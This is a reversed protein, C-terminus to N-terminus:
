GMATILGGRVYIYHYNGDRDYFTLTHLSSASGLGSYGGINYDNSASVNYFSPSDGSEYYQSHSHYISAYNSSVWSQTAVPFGGVYVNSSARLNIVDTNTCLFSTLNNSIDLTNSEIVLNGATYMRPAGTSTLGLSGGPWGITGGYVGGGSLYGNAGGYAVTNAPVNTLNSWDLTGQLNTVTLTTGDVELDGWKLINNASDLYHTSDKYIQTGNITFGGAKLTGDVDVYFTDTSDKTIKIGDDPNISISTTGKTVTFSANTLVAGNQDLTFSADESTIALSNGALITGFIADGIIGYGTGGSPLDVEGIALASSAWGDDTFGIVNNTVWVQKDDYTAGSVKRGRLGTQDIVFSQDTANILKNTSADLASVIFTSVDDKHYKNWNSWIESNFSVNTGMKTVQGMLDSYVFAAGDLRLRNGFTMSFNSLDSHDIGLELLVAEVVTGDKLEANVVCGLELDDTFQSYEDLALFNIASLSFEYRPQSIKELVNVAQDYLDQSQDQIEAPTMSDLQIINENQYTNEYFYRSLEAYESETFNNTFSLEDNISELYAVQADILVQEGNIDDTTDSIDSNISSIEALIATTSQNNQVAAALLTEQAALDAQLSALTTEYTSKNDYNTRLASVGTAYDSQRLDVLDEWDTLASILSSSMWRSTKYYSFDYIINTGLPNVSRITLGNGGYVYLVTTLEDSKESFKADKILNDFSLFIDTSTTANDVTTASITKNEYDFSFVCEFAEEVDEMLFSYITSGSVDFSRYKTTLETDIDGVSWSPIYALIKDLLTDEPDIIDYFKISTYSFTLLKKNILEGDISYCEVNKIPSAGDLDEDVGTIIYFDKDNVQILRKNELYEYPELTNEGNDISQPYSFSIESLANFRPTQYVGLANELAYLQEGSPNCLVLIPPEPRGFIDFEQNM